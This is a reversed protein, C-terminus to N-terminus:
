SQDQTRSSCSTVFHNSGIFPVVLQEVTEVTRERAIGTTLSIRARITDGEITPFGIVKVAGSAVIGIAMIFAAISAGLTFYRVKLLAAAAPGRPSGSGLLACSSCTESLKGFSERFNSRFKTLCNGEQEGSYLVSVIRFMNRQYGM